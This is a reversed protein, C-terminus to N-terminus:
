QCILNFPHWCDLSCGSIPDDVETDSCEITGILTTSTLTQQTRMTTYNFCISYTRKCYAGPCAVLDIIGAVNCKKWCMPTRIESYGDTGQNCPPIICLSTAYHSLIYSNAYSLFASFNSILTNYCTSSSPSISYITFDFGQVGIPSCRFCIEVSYTCGMYPVSVSTLTYGPDCQSNAKEYNMSILMVFLLAILIIKKMLIGKTKNIINLELLCKTLFLM